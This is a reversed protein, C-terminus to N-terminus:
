FHLTQNTLDLLSTTNFGRFTYAPLVLSHPLSKPICKTSKKGHKISETQKKGQEPSLVLSSPHNTIKRINLDTKNKTLQIENCKKWKKYFIVM